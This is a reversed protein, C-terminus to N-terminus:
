EYVILICNTTLSSGAGPDSTQAKITFGCTSTSNGYVGGHFAGDSPSFYSKFAGNYAIRLYCNSDDRLNLVLNGQDSATTQYYIDAGDTSGSWTIKSSTNTDGISAFNVAGSMTGGSLPLYSHTHGVTAFDGTNNFAASGLKSKIWNWLASLPKRRYSVGTEDEGNVHQGLYYDTDTPDTEEVDVAEVLKNIDLADGVAKADAPAGEVSLTVDVSVAGKAEEASKAAAEASAQANGESNAAATASDAANKESTAANTASTEAETAKATATTAADTATSASSAANSESTAANTESMKAANESAKAKDASEKAATQSAASAEQSAKAAAESAASAVQSDNAASASSAANEESTKSAEESAKANAESQAAANKNALAKAASKETATQNDAAKAQSNAAASASDAANNESVKAADESSKSKTESDKAANQSALAAEESAKANLESQKAKNESALSADESDKAANQSAFAAEESAKANLESQKANKESQLAAHESAKAKNQSDLAAAESAAANQESKKAAEESAKANVESTRAGDRSSNAATAARNAEEKLSRVRAEMDSMSNAIEEAKDRWGEAGAMGEKARREIEAFRASMIELATPDVPVGEGTSNLSSKVPLSTPLTNFNYKFRQNYGVTEISYFRVSFYVNSDYKTVDNLIKWGFIVKGPVSDVDIKTIPYFGESKQGGSGIAEFQVVCMETSLDHQDFYRDIEFYITEAAHDNQVGIFTFADPITITRSNADIIFRPEDTPLMVLEKLNDQNQIDALRKIYEEPSTIM